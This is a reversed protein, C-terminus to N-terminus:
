SIPAFTRIPRATNGSVVSSELFITFSSTASIGGAEQARSIVVSNGTITCIQITLNGNGARLGIAGGNFYATNNARTSNRIIFGASGIIGYFGVAGGRTSTNSSLTSNDIQISGNNYENYIAGGTGFSSNGTL